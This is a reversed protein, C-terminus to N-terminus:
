AASHPSSLAQFRLLQDVCYNKKSNRGSGRTELRYIQERLNKIEPIASNRRTLRIGISLAQLDLDDRPTEGGPGLVMFRTEAANATIRVPQKEQRLGPLVGRGHYVTLHLNSQLRNRRGGYYESFFAKIEEECRASIRLMANAEYSHSHPGRTTM